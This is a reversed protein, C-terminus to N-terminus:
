RRISLSKASLGTTLTAPDFLWHSPATAMPYVNQYHIIWAPKRSAKRFDIEQSTAFFASQIKAARRPAKALRTCVGELIKRRNLRSSRTRGWTVDCTM